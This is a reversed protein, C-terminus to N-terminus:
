EDAADSTYLLCICDKPLINILAKRIMEANPYALADSDIKWVEQYYSAVANCVADVGSGVVIANVPADADIKKVAAVMELASDDPVGDKYGIYAFIQGAM